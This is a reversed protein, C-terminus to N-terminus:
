FKGSELIGILALLGGWNYFPHSKLRSDDGRGTIASYNESILGLEEYNKMFLQLSKESLDQRAKSIVPYNRMGM